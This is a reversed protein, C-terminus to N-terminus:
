FHHPAEHTGACSRTLGYRWARPPPVTIGSAHGATTAKRPPADTGLPASCFLVPASGSPPLERSSPSWPLSRALSCGPQLSPLFPARTPRM